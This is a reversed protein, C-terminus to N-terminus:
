VKKGSKMLRIVSVTKSIMKLNLIEMIIKKDVLNKYSFMNVYFLITKNDKQYNFCNFFLYIRPFKTQKLWM